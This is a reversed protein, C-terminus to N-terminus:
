LEAMIVINVGGFHQDLAPIFLLLEHTKTTKMCYLITGGHCSADKVQNSWLFPHKRRLCLSTVPQEYLLVYIM